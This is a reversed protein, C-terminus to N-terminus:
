TFLFRFPSKALKYLYYAIKNKGGLYFITDYITLHKNKKLINYYKKMLKKDQFKIATKLRKREYKQQIIELYHEFEDKGMGQKKIEKITNILIDEHEEIRNLIDQYKKNLRSHSNERAYIYYLIKNLYGCKNKYLVPLLMQYNQGGRSEYINKYPNIKIFESSRIMYAGGAFCSTRQTILDHFLNNKYSSIWKIKENGFDDFIMSKCLVINFSKNKELFDVKLKINNKHLIDDSDPWTIYDGSFIKLGQNLAAAQGKNKQFIYKFKIGKLKFKEEYSKVIEETKDTSGDNIFVLEIKPYTQNLVSNLFKHVFKEGNYCPTIISVLPKKTKKNNM